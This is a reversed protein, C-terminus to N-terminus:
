TLEVGYIDTIWQPITYQYGIIGEWELVHTFVTNHSMGNIEADRSVDNHELGLHQRVKDIIYDPYRPEVSQAETQTLETRGLIQMLKTYELGTFDGHDSTEDIMQNIITQSSSEYSTTNSAYYESNRYARVDTESYEAILFGQYLAFAVEM